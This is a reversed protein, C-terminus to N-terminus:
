TKLFYHWSKLIQPDIWASSNKKETELKLEFRSYGSQCRTVPYM